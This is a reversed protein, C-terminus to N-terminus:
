SPTAERLFAKATLPDPMSCIFETIVDGTSSHRLVKDLWGAYRSHRFRGGSNPPMIKEIGLERRQRARTPPTFGGWLGDDEALGAIACQIRVPCTRCTPQVSQYQAVNGSDPYFVDVPIGQCAAADTWYTM